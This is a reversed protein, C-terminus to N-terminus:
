HDLREKPMSTKKFRRITVSAEQLLDCGRLNEVKKLPAASESKVASVKDQVCVCVCLNFM